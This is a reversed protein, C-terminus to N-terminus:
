QCKADRRHRQRGCGRRQPIQDIPEPGPTDDKRAERDESASERGQSQQCRVDPMEIGYETDETEDAITCSVQSVRTDNGGPKIPPTAHRQGHQHSTSREAGSGLSSAKM